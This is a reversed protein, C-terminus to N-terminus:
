VNRKRQGFVHRDRNDRRGKDRYTEKIDRHGGVGMGRRQPLVRSEQNLLNHTRDGSRLVIISADAFKASESRSLWQAFLRPFKM